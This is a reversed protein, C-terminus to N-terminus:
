KVKRRELELEISRKISALFLDAFCKLLQDNM